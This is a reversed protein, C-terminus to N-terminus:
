NRILLVEDGPKNSQKRGIYSAWQWGSEPYLSRVLPTDYYRCVIRTKKFASIRAAMSAHLEDPFKVKYKKGPGAFPPDLYIACDDRDPCLGLFEQWDLCYFSCKRVVKRWDALAAAAARYRTASDGGGPSLRVSLGSKFERDTGADGNRGMWAAIFYYFASQECGQVISTADFQKRTSCYHQALKLTTEHLIMRRLGRILRPGKEGHALCTALNIVDLHLDNVLITNARLHKLECMGGAFPVGVWKKNALLKGVEPALTRGSGYWPVLTNISM